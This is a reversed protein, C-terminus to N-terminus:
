SFSKLRPDWRIQICGHQIWTIKRKLDDFANRCREVTLLPQKLNLMVTEAEERYPVVTRRAEIRSVAIIDATPMLVDSCCQKSQGSFSKDQVAFEHHEALTFQETPDLVLTIASSLSSSSESV